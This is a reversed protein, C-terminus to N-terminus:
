GGACQPARRGAGRLPQGERGAGWDWAAAAARPTVLQPWEGMGWRRGPKAAPAGGCGRQRGGPWGRVAEQQRPPGQGWPGWRPGQQACACESERARGNGWDKGCGCGSARGPAPQGGGTFLAAACWGDGAPGRSSFLTGCCGCGPQGRWPGPQLPWTACAGSRCRGGAPFRTTPTRGPWFRGGGRQISARSPVHRQCQLRRRRRLTLGGEWRSARRCPLLGEAERGEGWDRGLLGKREKM